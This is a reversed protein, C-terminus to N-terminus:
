ISNQVPKVLPGRVSYIKQPRNSPGYAKSYGSCWVHSKHGVSALNYGGAVVYDHCSSSPVWKMPAGKLEGYIRCSLASSLDSFKRPAYYRVAATM